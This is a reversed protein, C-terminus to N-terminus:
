VSFDIVYERTENVAPSLQEKDMPMLRYTMQKKGLISKEIGMCKYHYSKIFQRFITICKKDTLSELYVNRKCPLYYTILEERLEIIKELTDCEIMNQKTFFRSDELDDLGFAELLLTIIYTDPKIKFLQNKKPM